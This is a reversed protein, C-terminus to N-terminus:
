PRSIRTPFRSRSGAGGLACAAHARRSSCPICRSTTLAAAHYSTALTELSRHRADARSSRVDCRMLHFLGAAKAQAIALMAQEASHIRGIRRSSAQMSRSFASRSVRSVGAARLAQALDLTFSEPNAECTFESPDCYSRVREVLAVLRAGLLSRREGASTSRRSRPRARGRCRVHGGPCTLAIATRPGIADDLECGGM